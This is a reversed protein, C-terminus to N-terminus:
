TILTQWHPVMKCTSIFLAALEAEAASAKVFKIIAAITIGVSNIKLMWLGYKGPTPM